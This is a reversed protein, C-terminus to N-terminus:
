LKLKKLEILYRTGKKIVMKIGAKLGKGEIKSQSRKEYDTLLYKKDNSITFWEPFQNIRPYDFPLHFIEKYRNTDFNITGEWDNEAQLTIYISNGKKVSGFVVDQRWPNVTVGQTKWLCYMITTRAFNGDAHNGEIIGSNQQKEWMVPIENDIWEALSPLPERNYLTLGSEIADAYGDSSTGEWLFHHYKDRLNKLAKLVAERYEKKNDILYVTYYADYIYGWCDVISNKLIEGKRPNVVDYFMGDKNRGIELVRDLIRYLPKQYEKKKEPYAYSVTVYLESLGGIVECGHDRLRLHEQELINKDGLLYYDGIEILWDLYKKNGTMWYVRSLTQMMEGNVEEVVSNGLFTGKIQHAVKQYKFIDDLMEFMRDSWPSKGIYETLPIIGDKIYESTGFIIKGADIKERLFGHKLFSYEDPMTGLRSTYKKEARLMDTMAGKYLDKDLIYSTLVMFPYNDAANNYANWIYRGEYFNEPFFDTVSDTYALWGQVYKICRQFGENAKVGNEFAKNELTKDIKYTNTCSPFLFLVSSVLVYAKIIKMKDM